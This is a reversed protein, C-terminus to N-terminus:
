GQAAYCAVEHDRGVPTMRPPEVVCKDHALPCRPEFACGRHEPAGALPHRDSTTLSRLKGAAPDPVPTSALLLQTYPHKPRRFIAATDGAEVVRGRYMVAVRDAVARVVALDHSILLFGIGEDRQLKLLLQLIQGQVSVDLASVPEDAIVIKPEVSLARAICLRQKQGGSLQHPFRDAYLEAPRLEVRELLALVEPAVSTRTGGKHLILPASLIERVTQRPNLASSPDQFVIQVLRSFESRSYSRVHPAPSADDLYAVDGALPKILRAALLAATTKGSGSEGVLALVEGTRVALSVDRVAVTAEKRWWAKVSGRTRYVKTVNDLVLRGPM